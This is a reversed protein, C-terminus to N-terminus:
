ASSLGWVAVAESVATDSAPYRLSISLKSGGDPSFRMCFTLNEPAVTLFHFQNQAEHAHKNLTM